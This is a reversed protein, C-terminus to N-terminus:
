IIQGSGSTQQLPGKKASGQRPYVRFRSKIITKRHDSARNSLQRHYNESERYLEVFDSRQRAFSFQREALAMAVSGELARFEKFWIYKFRKFLELRDTGRSGRARKRHGRDLIGGEPARFEKFWIYKFRKFSKM